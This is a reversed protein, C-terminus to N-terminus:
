YVKEHVEMVRLYNVDTYYKELNEMTSVVEGPKCAIRHETSKGSLDVVSAVLTLGLLEADLDYESSKECMERYSESTDSRSLIIQHLISLEDYIHDAMEMVEPNEETHHGVKICDSEMSDLASYRENVMNELEVTNLELLGKM